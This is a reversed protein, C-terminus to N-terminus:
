GKILVKLLIKTMDRRDTKNASSLQIGLSFCRSAALEQYFTGCSPMNIEVKTGVREPTM